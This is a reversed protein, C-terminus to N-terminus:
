FGIGPVSQIENITESFTSIFKPLVFALVILPIVILIISGIMTAMFAHYMRKTMKEIRQLTFELQDLRDQLDKEM